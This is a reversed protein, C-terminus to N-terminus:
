KIGEAMCVGYGFSAGEQHKFFHLSTLAADYLDEPILAANLMRTKASDIVGILNDVFGEFSPEGACAGFFVWDYRIPSAGATYLLSPLRRGIFADVGLRDYARMYAQWLPAFGLPEPYLRLLDHDDDLLVIRGKPRVAEVMERVATLPDRLHELVFRCHVLDFTGWEYDELPLEYASGKRFTVLHAEGAVTAKAEAEKLQEANLEIGLANRGSTQALLRTMQGLGSGVDLIREGAQVGIKELCRTNILRNLLSLRDQEAEHTGHIYTEAM